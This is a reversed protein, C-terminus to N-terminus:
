RFGQTFSTTGTPFASPASAPFSPARSPAAIPPLSAPAGPLPNPSPVVLGYGPLPQGATIVPLAPAQTTEPEPQGGRAGQRTVLPLPPAASAAAWPAAAAPADQATAIAPSELRPLLVLASDDRPPMTRPPPVAAVLSQGAPPAFLARTTVPPNPPPVNGDAPQWPAPPRTDKEMPPLSAAFGLPAGTRAAEASAEAAARRHRQGRAPPPPPASAVEPPAPVNGPAICRFEMSYARSEVHSDTLLFLRGHEGCFSQAQALGQNVAAVGSVHALKLVFSDGGTAEVGPNQSACAALFAAPLSLVPLSLFLPRRM